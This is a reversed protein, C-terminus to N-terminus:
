PLLQVESHLLIIFDETLDIRLGKRGPSMNAPAHLQDTVEM